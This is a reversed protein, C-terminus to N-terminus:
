GQPAAVPVPTSSAEYSEDGLEGEQNDGWCYVGASTNACTHLEGVGVETASSIGSVPTPLGTAENSGNGLQGARNEGWCDVTGNELLACSDEFGGGISVAEHLIDVPVPTAQVFSIEGDGLEGYYDDGWCRAEGNRLVACSHFDGNGIAVADNIDEVEVPETREETSGDGLEGNSNLGWCEVTGGSLLACAHYAGLAIATASHIGRVEVPTASDETTGDGLEGYENEGWCDVRGTALLACSFWANGAVVAKVGSLGQISENVEYGGNAYGNGLDGKTNSGWCAASENAFAACAHAFGVSLGTSHQSEPQALPVRSDGGLSADEGWCLISGAIQAACSGYGGADLHDVNTLGPMGLETTGGGDPPGGDGSGGSGPGGGSGSGGGGSPACGSWLRPRIPTWSPTNLNKGLVTVGASLSGLDAFVSCSHGSSWEFEPGFGTSLHMNAGKAVGIGAQVGVSTSLKASGVLSLAGSTWVNSGQQTLSAHNDDFGAATSAVTTSAVNITAATLKGNIHAGAKVPITAYVPIVVPGVPIAADYPGLEALSWDCNIGAAVATLGMSETTRIALTLRMQPPFAGLSAQRLEFSDLHAGFKFLKPPSCSHSVHAFRDAGRASAATVVPQFDLNGEFELSPVAKTIPVAVVRTVYRSGRRKVGTVKSILGRPLRRTPGSVFITGIGPTQGRTPLLLASPNEPSGIFGLVKRPLPKTAPNVIGTYRAVVTTLKGPKVNATLRKRAPYGTAGSQVGNRASGITVPRVALIYHGSPLKLSQTGALRVVKKGGSGSLRILGHQGKPLGKTSLM